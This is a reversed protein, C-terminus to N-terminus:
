EAATCHSAQLLDHQHATFYRLANHSAQVVARSSITAGSLADFVGGDAVIRWQTANLTTLSQADFMSLWTALWQETYRFHWPMTDVIQAGLRPTEHQQHIRVRAISGNSRISVWTQITDSFGMVNSPIIVATVKAQKCAYYIVSNPAVQLTADSAIDSHNFLLNNDYLSAPLMAQLTRQQPFQMALVRAPNTYISLILVITGCLLTLGLLWAYPSYRHWTMTTTKAHANM